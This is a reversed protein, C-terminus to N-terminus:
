DTINRIGSDILDRLDNEPILGITRDGFSKEVSKQIPEFSFDGEIFLLM